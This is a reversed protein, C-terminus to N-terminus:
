GFRAAGSAFFSIRSGGATHTVPSTATMPAIKYKKVPRRVGRYPAAGRLRSGSASAAYFEAQLKRRGKAAPHDVRIM